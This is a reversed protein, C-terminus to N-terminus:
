TEGPCGPGPQPHDVLNKPSAAAAITEGTPSFVFSWVTKDRTLQQPNGKKDLDIMYLNKHKLNEEFFIFEYGKEKLKKEKETEPTEAIYAIKNQKPLWQFDSVNTRAHTLQM